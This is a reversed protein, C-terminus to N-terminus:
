SLQGSSAKKRWYRALISSVSVRDGDTMITFYFVLGGVLVICLAAVVIAVLDSAGSTALRCLAAVTAVAIILRGIPILVQAAHEAIRIGFHRMTYFPVYWNNTVLQACLTGLAVGLLGLRHALFISAGINLVGALIAPVVFVIKGTAMTATAMAVHHAELLMVGLLVWVVGFGIFQHPGLWVAIIRDAFVAIVTGFIVLVSLSVRMNRYLLRKIEDVRHSAHAQSLFPTTTVVLMMALSMMTTVLKALASYGPIKATGLVSAIVLNDTQLILIGGLLTAAYKLSPIALSRVLAADFIPRRSSTNYLKRYFHGALLRTFIGQVTWASALGILGLHLFLAVATLLLWLVQGASRLTKEIAVQGSGYLVAFWVEGILNLAAGTALIVWAIQVQNLLSPPSVSRLYACGIPMGVLIAAVSLWVFVLMCSHVLSRIRFTREEDGLDQNGVCFSVERGLTPSIGLDFFILYGVMSLFLMWLGATGASLRTVVLRFQIVAVCLNVAAFLMSGLLGRAIQRDSGM